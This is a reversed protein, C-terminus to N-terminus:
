LINIPNRILETYTLRACALCAWGQNRWQANSEFRHMKLKTLWEKKSLTSPLIKLVEELGGAIRRINLRLIEKCLPAKVRAVEKIAQSKNQVINLM